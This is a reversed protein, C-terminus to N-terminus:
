GRMPRRRQREVFDYVVELMERFHEFSVYAAVAAILSTEHCSLQHVAGHSGASVEGFAWNQNSSMASKERGMEQEIVFCRPCYSGGAQGALEVSETLDISVMESTLSHEVSCPYLTAM